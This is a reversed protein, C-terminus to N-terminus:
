IRKPNKIINIKNGEYDLHHNVTGIIIFVDGPNLEKFKKSTSNFQVIDKGSSCYHRITFFRGDPIYTSNLTLKLEVIDGNNGIFDPDAINNQKIWNHAIIINLHEHVNKLNEHWQRKMYWVYGADKKFVESVTEGSYKGNLFVSEQIFNAVYEEQQIKLRTEEEQKEKILREKEENRMRKIENLDFDSSDILDIDNELAYQIAEKLAKEKNTSLNKVFEEKIVLKGVMNYDEVLIRLTYFGIKSGTSIFCSKIKM